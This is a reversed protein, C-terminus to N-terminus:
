SQFLEYSFGKEFVTLGATNRPWRNACVGGSQWVTEPVEYKGVRCVIVALAFAESKGGVGSAM